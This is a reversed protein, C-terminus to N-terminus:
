STFLRGALASNRPFPSIKGFPTEPNAAGNRTGPKGASREVENGGPQRKTRRAYIKESFNRKPHRNQSRFQNAAIVRAESEPEQRGGVLQFRQEPLFSFGLPCIVSKMSFVTGEVAIPLLSAKSRLKFLRIAQIVKTAQVAMIDRIGV